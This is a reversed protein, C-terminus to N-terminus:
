IELIKSNMGLDILACRDEMRAFINNAEISRPNTKVHTELYQINESFSMDEKMVEELANHIDLEIEIFPVNLGAKLAVQYAANTLKALFQEPSIDSKVYFKVAGM